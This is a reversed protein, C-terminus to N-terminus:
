NYPTNIESFLLVVRLPHNNWSVSLMLLFWWMFYLEETCTWRSKQACTPFVSFDRQLWPLVSQLFFTKKKKNWIYRHKCVSDQFKQTVTYHWITHFSQRLHLWSDKRLEVMGENIHFSQPFCVSAKGNLVTLMRRHALPCIDGWYKKWM